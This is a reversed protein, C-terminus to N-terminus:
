SQPKRLVPYPTLGDEMARRLYDQPSRIPRQAEAYKLRIRQSHQKVTESSVGLGRAITEVLEGEALRTLVQQQKPTLDVKHLDPDSDVAAAWETTFYPEGRSAMRVAELLEAKPSDKLVVGLVKAKIASRLLVPHEGSTYVLVRIGHAHLREVNEQPLSGDALRLDLIALDVAPAVALLGDVTAAYGAWALEDAGSLLLELADAYLPHDDILGVRYVSM